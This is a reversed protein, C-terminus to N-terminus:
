KIALQGEILAQFCCQLSQLSHLLCQIDNLSSRKIILQRLGHVQQCLDSPIQSRDRDGLACPDKTEELGFDCIESVM